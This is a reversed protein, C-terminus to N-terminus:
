LDANQLDCKKPLNDKNVKGANKPCLKGDAKILQM